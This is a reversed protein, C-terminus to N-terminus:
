DETKFYGMKCTICNTDGTLESKGNECTGCSIDSEKILGTNEENNLVYYYNWTKIHM